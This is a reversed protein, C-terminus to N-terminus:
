VRHQITNSNHRTFYNLQVLRDFNKGKMAIRAALRVFLRHTFHRYLLICTHQLVNSVGFMYWSLHEAVNLGGEEICLAFAMFSSACHYNIHLLIHKYLLFQQADESEMGISIWNGPLLGLM